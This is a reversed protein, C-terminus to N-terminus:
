CQRPRPPDASGVLLASLISVVSSQFLNGFRPAPSRPGPDGPELAGASGCHDIGWAMVTNVHAAVREPPDANGAHIFAPRGGDGGPSKRARQRRRRGTRGRRCGVHWWGLRPQGSAGDIVSQTQNVVTPCIGRGRVPQGALDKGFSQWDTVIGSTRRRGGTVRAAQRAVSTGRASLVM